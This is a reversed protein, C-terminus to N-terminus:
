GGAIGLQTLIGLQDSSGWREVLKGDEFRGIQVGRVNIRNGTAPNGQFPGHNTGTIMYAFAVDDDTATLHEVEVHLDPFATRLESFMDRYGQPGPAQGPAPDHDVSDAAVLDDFDLTGTNIAEGFAEQAAINTKKDFM